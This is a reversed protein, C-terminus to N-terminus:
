YKPAVPVVAKVPARPRPAFIIRVTTVARSPVVVSVYVTVTVARALIVCVIEKVGGVPNTAEPLVAAKLAVLSGAPEIIVKVLMVGIIQVTLPVVTVGTVAPLHKM